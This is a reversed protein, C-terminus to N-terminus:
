SAEKEQVFYTAPRTFRGPLIKAVPEDCPEEFWGKELIQHLSKIRYNRFHLARRCALELTKHGWVDALRLVEHAKRLNRIAHDGLIRNIYEGISNGLEYARRRCWDPTKELFARKEAPYDQEDTRWTGPSEARLHTKILRHDRYIRVMKLDARVWVDQRCYRYPVSYYSRDFVVHCDAHVRCSKWEAPEFPEAPLPLLQDAEEQEFVEYPKRKTTGHKRLGIRNRCWEFAYENAEDINRYFRGAILQQRVVPVQREVKGKDFAIL